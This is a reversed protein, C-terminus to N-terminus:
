EYREDLTAWQDPDHSPIIVAQPYQRSFLRLEQLSRRFTHPDVPRPPGPEDELQGLTYIADGAIM